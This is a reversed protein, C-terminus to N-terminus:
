DGGAPAIRPGLLEEGPRSLCDQAQSLVPIMFVFLNAGDASTVQTKPFTGVTAVDQSFSPPKCTAARGAVVEWFM